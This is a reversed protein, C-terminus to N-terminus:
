GFGTKDRRVRVGKRRTVTADVTLKQLFQVLKFLCLQQHSEYFSADMGVLQSIM